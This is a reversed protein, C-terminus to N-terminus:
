KLSNLRKEIENWEIETEIEKLKVDDNSNYIAAYINLNGNNDKSNDTYIIYNRNTKIWFFSLLIEYETIKGNDNIIKLFMNKNM